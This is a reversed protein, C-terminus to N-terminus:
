STDHAMIKYEIETKQTLSNLLKYRHKYKYIINISKYKYRYIYLIHIGIHKFSTM